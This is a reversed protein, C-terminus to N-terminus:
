KSVRQELEVGDRTYKLTVFDAASELIAYSAIEGYAKVEKASLLEYSEYASHLVSLFKAPLQEKTLITLVYNLRGKLDFGAQLKQGQHQFFVVQGKALPSWIADKAEPFLRVFVNMAAANPATAVSIAPNASGPLESEGPANGSRNAYQARVMSVSFVLLVVILARANFKIHVSM